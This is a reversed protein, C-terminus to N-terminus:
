AGASGGNGSETIILDLAVDHALSAFEVQQCNYAIGVTRPRPTDALTRDYYGGGYGLRYGRADFGLCPVLLAPPRPAMRLQQPVAVGMADKHMAEGPTWEAFGLAAHRALVVPLLLTVGRAALTDFTASLDVEGKLPWYVALTQVGEAAQWALLQEGIEADWLAKDLPDIAARRAALTRRLAQKDVASGTESPAAAPLDAPARPIRSTGTM